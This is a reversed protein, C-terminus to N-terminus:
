IDLEEVFKANQQIFHYRKEAHRGMLDDVFQEVGGADVDYGHPLDVRILTRKEPNMTTEKLQSASMQGLGKFRKIEVKKNKFTVKVHHDREEDSHVYLSSSGHKLQYLPPQALYLHGREVIPRMKQFFFTMLLATIHAGDVDADTMIIIKEYRLKDPDCSSGVGCGLAHALDNVEQNALIKDLSANAVNLIKGRLPLVAQIKHDRGQKASGGASDGEVLFIETGEPSQRSCDALKGPLRLRQTASKRQTDKLSKLRQREEYRNVIHDLIKQGEELHHSLWFELPDKIANEVFRQVGASVLKEKTQGQFQPDRVFVSLMVNTAAFVDDGTVQGIKKNKVMDGFVKLSKTIATRLGTEHTGGLPTPITNCYSYFLNREEETWVISWEMHGEGEPFQVYGSFPEAVLREAVPIVQDMFDTLGNPFHILEQVPTDTGEVLSPAVRWDIKVGKFLFAKARVMKYLLSPKIAAKQGFIETDPVFTIRTGKKFRVDDSPALPGQPVGRTYRQEWVKGDRAVEVLLSSSLANVVSLGVGHLGGATTYAGTKFKGGSHLTTLIVELASTNEYKPHPDIPIGRGDDDITLSLDENLTVGIKKAHGAVAEDMANDLIEAALHHLAREDTGGIYMGPRRRVPELGELVEIDQATYETKSKSSMKQSFLESTM